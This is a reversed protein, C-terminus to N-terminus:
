SDGTLGGLLLEEVIGLALFGVGGVLGGGGHFPPGAGAGKSM